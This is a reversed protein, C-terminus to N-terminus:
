EPAVDIPASRLTVITQQRGSREAWYVHGKDGLTLWEAIGGQLGKVRMKQELIEDRERGDELQDAIKGLTRHLAELPGDLTPEVVDPERLRVVPRLALLASAVADFFLRSADLADIVLQQAEPGGLKRFLGRKTRPNFLFKLARDVGYSSLSLGFN